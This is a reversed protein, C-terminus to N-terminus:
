ESSFAALRGPKRLIQVAEGSLGRVIEGEHQSALRGEADFQPANKAYDADYTYGVLTVREDVELVSDYLVEPRRVNLAFIDPRSQNNIRLLDRFGKTTVFAHRAGKRELLANTAVTTSLRIYDIKSTDLKQRRPIRQGTALELVRRCAETPADEYNSPDVSLLKLVREDRNGAADPWSTHVDTFTGGRDISIRISNDPVTYAPLISPM